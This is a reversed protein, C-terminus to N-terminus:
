TLRVSNVSVTNSVGGWINLYVDDIGDYIGNGNMDLFGIPIKTPWINGLLKGSDTDLSNIMRGPILGLAGTLRVDNIVTVVKGPGAAQHVYVPDELDYSVGNYLNAYRIELGPFPTVLMGFDNDVPDVKSGAPYNAFPTLRIDNANVALGPTHLYVIDNPDYGPNIIDWYVVTTGPMTGLPLGLDSDMPTVKTGFGYDSAWALGLLLLISSIAMIAYKKDTM